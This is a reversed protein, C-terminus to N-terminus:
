SAEIRPTIKIADGDNAITYPGDTFREALMLDASTTRIMFYGYVDQATQAASSTFTQQAYDAHSPAGTTVSWSAGTLPANSYGTFDATTYTAATDTEAPTTNSKYLKLVLDEPTDKNVIYQLAIGEGVDPVVITGLISEQVRNIWENLTLRALVDM